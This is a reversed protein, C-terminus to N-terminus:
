LGPLLSRPNQFLGCVRVVGWQWPWWRQAEVSMVTSESWTWVGQCRGVALAVVEPGGSAVAAAEWLGSLLLCFVTVAPLLPNPSFNAYMSTYGLHVFIFPSVCNEQTTQTHPTPTAWFLLSGFNQGQNGPPKPLRLKEWAPWSIPAKLQRSWHEWHWWKRTRGRARKCKKRRKPILVHTYVFDMKTIWSETM